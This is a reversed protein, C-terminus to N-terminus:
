KVVWTQVAIILIAILSIIGQTALLVDGQLGILALFGVFFSILGIFGTILHTVESSNYGNNKFDAWERIKGEFAFGIGLIMLMLAATNNSLWEFGVFAYASIGVFGLISIIALSYGLANSIKLQKAM